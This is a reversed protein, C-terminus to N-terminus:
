GRLLRESLRLMALCSGFFGLGVALYVVDAMEDMREM